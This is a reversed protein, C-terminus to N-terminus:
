REPSFKLRRAASLKQRGHLKRHLSSRDCRLKSEALLKSISWEREILAALLQEALTRVRSNFYLACHAVDLLM